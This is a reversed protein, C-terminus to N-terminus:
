IWEPVLVVRFGLHTWDSNTEIHRLLSFDGPGNCGTAYCLANGQEDRYFGLEMADTDSWEAHFVNGILNFVGPPCVTLRFGKPMLQRDRWDQNTLMILERMSAFDHAFRMGNVFGARGIYDALPDLTPDLGYLSGYYQRGLPSYNPKQTTEIGLILGQHRHHGINLAEQCSEKHGTARAFDRGCMPYMKAVYKANFPVARESPIIHWEINFRRLHAAVTGQRDEGDQGDPFIANDSLLEVDGPLEFFQRLRRGREELWERM